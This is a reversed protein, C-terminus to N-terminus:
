ALIFADIPSRSWGKRNVRPPDHRVIPQYAWHKSLPADASGDDPWAAGADIWARLSAIQEASLPKGAEEPPMRESADEAEVRRLLESEGSKGAVWAPGSDGGAIANTRRDLRLGAEQKEVGHCGTCHATFIPQVDRVFDISKAPGAAVASSAFM